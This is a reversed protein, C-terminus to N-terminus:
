FFVKVINYVSFGLLGLKMPPAQRLNTMAFQFSFVGSTPDRGAEFVTRGVNLISMVQWMGLKQHWAKPPAYASFDAGPYDFPPLEPDYMASSASATGSEPLSFGFDRGSGADDFGLKYAAHTSLSSRTPNATAPSSSVGRGTTPFVIARASFLLLLAVIGAAMKDSVKGRAMPIMQELVIRCRGPFNSAIIRWNFNLRGGAVVDPGIIMGLLLLMSIIMIFRTFGLAFIGLLLLLGLFIAAYEPKVSPPLKSKALSYYKQIEQRVRPDKTLLLYQAKVQDITNGQVLNEPKLAITQQSQAMHVLYRGRDENYQIVVGLQGNVSEQSTNCVKVIVSPPNRVFNSPDSM